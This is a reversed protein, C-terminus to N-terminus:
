LASTFIGNRLITALLAFGNEMTTIFHRTLNENM